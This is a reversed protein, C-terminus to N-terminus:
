DNSLGIYIGESLFVLSRVYVPLVVVLVVIILVIVHVWWWKKCHARRAFLGGKAAAAAGNIEAAGDQSVAPKEAM